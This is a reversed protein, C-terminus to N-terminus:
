KGEPEEGRIEEREEGEGDVYFHVEVSRPDIRRLKGLKILRDGQVLYDQEMITVAGTIKKFFNMNCFHNFQGQVSQGEDLPVRILEPHFDGYQNKQAADMGVHIYLEYVNRALQKNFQENKNATLIFIELKGNKERGFVACRKKNELYCKFNVLYEM